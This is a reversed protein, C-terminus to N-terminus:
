QPTMFIMTKRLPFSCNKIKSARKKSTNQLTPEQAQKKPTQKQNTANKRSFTVFHLACFHPHKRQTRSKKEKPRELQSFSTWFHRRPDWFWWFTAWDSGRAELLSGFHRWFHALTCGLCFGAIWLNALTKNIGLAPRSSKEASNYGRVYKLM